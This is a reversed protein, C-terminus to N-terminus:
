KFTISWIGRVQNVDYGVAKDTPYLQSITAYVDANIDKNPEGHCQLCMSNTTIPYYFHNVGDILETVPEYDKNSAISKKFQEIIALEKKNAQNNINRPRDSVRKIRANQAIAMSDTMPYAKVNCFTVAEKTGKKQITGMLNKGLEKKTSLAYQLGKEEPTHYNSILTDNLKAGDNRYKVKGKSEEEIHKKFWEPEDIKFEYMYDAILRIDEEKFVQYPMLNFRRVAGRMKSKKETPKEVFNWIADAFEKQSIDDNLYHSKVAVMPPAIRGEINANPNHCLYCQNELLKKGPHNSATYITQKEIDNQTAYDSKKSNNCSTLTAVLLFISIYSLTLKM